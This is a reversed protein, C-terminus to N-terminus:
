VAYSLFKYDDKFGITNSWTMAESCCKYFMSHLKKLDPQKTKKRQKEETVTLCCVKSIVSITTYMFHVTFGTFSSCFPYILRNMTGTHKPMEKHTVMPVACVQGQSMYPQKSDVSWSGLITCKM